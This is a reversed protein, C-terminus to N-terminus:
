IGPCVVKFLFKDFPAWQVQFALQEIFADIFSVPDPKKLNNHSKVIIDGAGNNFGLSILIMEFYAKFTVFFCRNNSKFPLPSRFSAAERVYFTESHLRWDNAWDHIEQDEFNEIFLFTVPIQDPIVHLQVTM